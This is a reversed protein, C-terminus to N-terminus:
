LSNFEKLLADVGSPSVAPVSVCSPIPATSYSSALTTMSEGSSISLMPACTPISPMSYGSPLSSPVVGSLSSPVVGSLSSPVVGSLSSPVVGSLSSPVVDSLPKALSPAGGGSPAAYASIALTILVTVSSVKM